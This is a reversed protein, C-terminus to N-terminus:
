SLSLFATVTLRGHAPDPDLTAGRRIAGSHLSGSRYLVARNYRAEVLEIREFLASSDAIYEAPPPVASLERNLQALYAASRGEDISELGTGRHRFFATGDSSNRALYHVLAIRGPEVSDVHPIRQEVSLESPTKTVISFSADTLDIASPQGFVEGLATVLPERVLAFYDPPLPARIGPYFRQGPEFQAKAALEALQEPDPHFHDIVVIPQRERGILRGSLKPPNM